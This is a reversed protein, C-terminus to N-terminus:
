IHKEKRQFTQFMNCIKRPSFAASINKFRDAKEEDKVVTTGDTAKIDAM